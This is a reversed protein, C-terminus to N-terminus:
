KIKERVVNMITELNKVPHLEFIQLLVLSDSDESM